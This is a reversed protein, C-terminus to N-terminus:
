RTKFYKKAISDASIGSSSFTSRKTVHMGKSRVASRRNADAVRKHRLAARRNMLIDKDTKKRVKIALSRNGTRLAKKAIMDKYGSDENFAQVADNHRDIIGKRKKWKMGKKGYHALYDGGKYYRFDNNSYMHKGEAHTIYKEPVYKRFRNEEGVIFDSFSMGYKRMRKLIANALEKEQAPSVYNFFRIASKVHRKDPMPYKKLKPLGYQKNDKM